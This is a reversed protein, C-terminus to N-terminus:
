GLATSGTDFTQVCLMICEVEHNDNGALIPMTLCWTGDWKMTNITGSCMYRVVLITGDVQLFLMYLFKLNPVVKRKYIDALLEQSVFLVQLWEQAETM